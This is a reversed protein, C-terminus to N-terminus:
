PGVVAQMQWARMMVRQNTEIRQLRMEMRNLQASVSDLGVNRQLAKSMLAFLHGGREELTDAEVDVPLREGIGEMPDRQGPQQDLTLGGPSDVHVRILEALAEHTEARMGHGVFYRDVAGRSVGIAKAIAERSGLKEALKELKMRKFSSSSGKAM